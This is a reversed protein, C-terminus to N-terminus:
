LLKGRRWRYAGSRKQERMAHCNFCTVETNEIENRIAEVSLGNRVMDAINARKEGRVHDFTLVVPDSNGCDVCHHTSLYSAIFERAKNRANEKNIRHRERRAGIDM